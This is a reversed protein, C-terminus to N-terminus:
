IETFVRKAYEDNCAHQTEKSWRYELCKHFWEVNKISLKKSYDWIVDVSAGKTRSATIVIDANNEIAYEFNEKLIDGTDGGPCVCIIQGKYNFADKKDGEFSLNDSISTGGNEIILKKLNNLTETKGCGAPGYIAMIRKM